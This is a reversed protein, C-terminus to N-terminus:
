RGYTLEDLAEAAYQRVAQESHDLFPEIAPRAAQDHTSGLIHLAHELLAPSMFPLVARLSGVADLAIAVSGCQL